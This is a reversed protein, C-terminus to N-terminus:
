KTDERSSLLSSVSCADESRVRLHPTTLSFWRSLTCSVGSLSRPALHNRQPCEPVREQSVDSTSSLESAPLRMETGMEVTSKKRVNTCWLIHTIKTRSYTNSPM